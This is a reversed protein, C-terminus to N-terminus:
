PYSCPTSRKARPTTLRSVARNTRATSFYLWERPRTSRQPWTSCVLSCNPTSTSPTVPGHKPLVSRVDPFRGDTPKAKIAHDGVALTLSDQGAALGVPSKKDGLRFAQVWDERSVLLDNTDDPCDELHAYDAKPIPGQIIALRRGDTAEVRYLGDGPDLVHVAQLAYRGFDRSAVNVLGALNRPFYLPM